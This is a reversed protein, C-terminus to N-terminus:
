PLASVAIYTLTGAPAKLELRLGEQLADPMLGAKTALKGSIASSVYAVMPKVPGAVVEPM